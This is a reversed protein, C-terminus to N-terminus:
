LTLTHTLGTVQDKDRLSLCSFSFSSSSSSPSLFFNFFTQWVFHLFAWFRVNGACIAEFFRPVSFRVPGFSLPRGFWSLFGLAGSWKLNGSCSELVRVLYCFCSCCLKSFFVAPHLPGYAAGGRQLTAGLSRPVSPAFAGGGLSGGGTACYSVLNVLSQKSGLSLEAM